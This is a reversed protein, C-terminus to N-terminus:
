LRAARRLLAPRDDPECCRTALLCTEVVLSLDEPLRASAEIEEFLAADGPRLLLARCRTSLAVSLQDLLDAQLQAMQCLLEFREDPDALTQLARAQLRVLREPDGLGEYLRTLSRLAEGCGPEIELLAELCQAAGEADDLHHELLEALRLLFRASGESSECQEFQRMLLDRADGFREKEILLEVCRSTIEVNGPALECAETLDELAGDADSMQTVRAGAARALLQARATRDQTAAALERLFTVHGAWDGRADALQELAEFAQPMGPWLKLAERFYDQARQHEDESDAASSDGTARAEHFLALSLCCSAQQHRDSGHEVEQRLANIRERWGEETALSALAAGLRAAVEDEPAFEAIANLVRHALEHHNPLDVLASVLELARALFAEDGFRARLADLTEAALGFRGLALLNDFLAEQLERQQPDAEIGEQLLALARDRRGIKLFARAAAAFLQPAKPGDFEVRARHAATRALAELEGSAEYITLLGDLARPSDPAFLLARRYLAAAKEPQALKTRALDGMIEIAGLSVPLDPFAQVSREYAKFLEEWHGENVFLQGMELFAPSDAPVLSPDKLSHSFNDNM